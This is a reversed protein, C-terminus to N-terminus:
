KARGKARRTPKSKARKGTNAWDIGASSAIAGFYPLQGCPDYEGMVETVTIYTPETAEVERLLRAIGYSIVDAGRMVSLLAIRHREGLPVIRSNKSRKSKKVDRGGM